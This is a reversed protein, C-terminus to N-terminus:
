QKYGGVLVPAHLYLPKTGLTNTLWPNFWAVAHSLHLLRLRHIAQLRAFGYDTSDAHFLSLTEETKTTTTTTHKKTNNNESTM